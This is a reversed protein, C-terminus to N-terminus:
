FLFSVVVVVDFKSRGNVRCVFGAHNNFKVFIRRPPTGANKRSM